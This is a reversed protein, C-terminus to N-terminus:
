TPYKSSLFFGDDPMTQYGIFHLQELTSLHSHLGSSLREVNRMTRMWLSTSILSVSYEMSRVDEVTSVREVNRTNRVWFDSLPSDILESYFNGKM